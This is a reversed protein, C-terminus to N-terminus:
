KVGTSNLCSAKYNEDLKTNVNWREIVEDLRKIVDQEFEKNDKNMKSVGKM